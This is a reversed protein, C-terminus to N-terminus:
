LSSIDLDQALTDLAKILEDHVPIGNVSFDDHLAQSNDGPLRVSDFGPLTPSARLSRALEDVQRKFDDVDGFSKLSVACIFQGTNTISEDDANFDVVERGMAAGNLTGALLGLVLAMGYGKYEGVPILFGENSRTPDTLPQGQNDVMWGVPIEEGRQAATKVKGYAAVTTAMDLVVAPEEMAPVAIALPNTSLLMEIGGWPPLHNASGVASYIGIMDRAMPMRAYVSATGAHNGNTVGVWAAGMKEAKDMAVQTARHVALSGVCNDGNVVATSDTEHELRINPTVNIGGAKIRRIYQPLRFVGHGSGGLLDIEIMVDAATDADGDPLGAAIYATKIFAKLSAAEVRRLM